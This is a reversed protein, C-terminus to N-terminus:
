RSMEVVWAYTNQWVYVVVGGHWWAVVGGCWWGVVGGSWLVGWGVVGGCWWALVDALVVALVGAINYLILILTFWWTAFGNLLM